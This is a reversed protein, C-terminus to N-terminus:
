RWRRTVGQDTLPDSTSEGHLAFVTIAYATNPLLNKLQVDTIKAKM